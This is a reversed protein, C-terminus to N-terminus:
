LQEDEFNVVKRNYFAGLVIDVQILTYTPGDVDDDRWYQVIEDIEKLADKATM